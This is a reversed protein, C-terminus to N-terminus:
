HNSEQYCNMFENAPIPKSFFYGQGYDCGAATLLNKQEETEVGEAIVQMGLKHAMVIIAECLSMDDSGPALNSTFSQDIKLYDIDFKKLYSLASYGTGFDDLSVQIGADRFELLTDTVHLSADLLLGETIEVAISQGPLGQESLYDYWSIHSQKENHFQVPSKNVSIQFAPNLFARWQKVQQAAERFVWDGIDVILGTDEAIPIFVAPSILGLQPHQWRLLAEAKYLAGTALEVIPQYAIWFQNDALAGRLDNAIRVRAQVAQQMSATFYSYRNRGNKKAAYMAQDANKLLIEIDTADEPYLTIGISVTVYAVHEGLHFPEAMKHLINQAVRDVNSVGELEGMIVTFEDGGLRAVTDTERVCSTIRRAAEILLADGKDHGLTDNIEKFQDLDLFMVALLHGARNAKKIDQELRDHFMQRNPLETLTDFNAQRWILEEAERKRSIDTFMAVRRLVSGNENFITNITLWKPYIEGNKRQDWVEGQWYGTNNIEDWMAHYFAEDHHGSNLIDPNKGLVEEEVYGTIKIFAPNVAIIENNANTIMIAESSTDYVSAALRLSEETAKRETIDQVFTFSFEEGESHIVNGIIEVPFITGNKRQHRTEIKIVKTKRLGEWMLPWAEPPFDPDFEWVYKSILEERSYGLSQCAYDNVYDVKGVASLRFFASQSREIATQTILLEGEIRNREKEARAREIIAWCREVVEEVLSVESPLWARATTHHVAMLARLVGQKVLPCCIIAKITIVKFMDRDEAPTIDIDVDNVVFTRGAQLNSVARSGFLALSYDGVTSACGDTYDQLITFHDGDNEVDAFACRSAQLHVGLLRTIVTMIVKPEELERTADGLKNLFRFRRESETLAMESQKRETIDQIFGEFYLDTDASAIMRRMIINVTIISGDRRRFDTEEQIWQNGKLAAEVIQERIHPDTYIQTGIHTIAAHLKEPSAYGLMTALYQNAAVIKGTPLSHFFGVPANQFLNLFKKESERSNKLTTSLVMGIVSLALMYFWFNLLGVPVQNTTSGGVQLVMGLLMQIAAMAIILLAGHRGFRAAGWTVFLFIWFGRAVPGFFDHFWGLFIIQGALFALGFCAITELVRQRNLWDHPLHRWVLILPTVLIIGLTEGQWWILLNQAISERTLIEAILLTSVGSLASVCTSLGGMVVLWLLHRPRTLALNFHPSHALLWVGVLAGLTNGTAIFISIEASTGQILNGALAGILVGPWYKKGGILLAALAVGSSPWVISVM